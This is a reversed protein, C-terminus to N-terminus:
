HSGLRIAEMPVMRAARWAPYLGGLTGMIVSLAIGFSALSMTMDLHIGGTIFLNVLQVGVWALLCGLLGALLGLYASEMTM